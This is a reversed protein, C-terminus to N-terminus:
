AVADHYGVPMSALQKALWQIASAALRENVLSFAANDLTDSASVVSTIAVVNGIPIVLWQMHMPVGNVESSSQLRLAVSDDFPIEEVSEQGAGQGIAAIFQTEFEGLTAADIPQEFVLYSITGSEYLDPNVSAAPSASLSPAGASDQELSVNFTHVGILTEMGAARFAELEQAQLSPDLPSADTFGIPLFKREIPAGLRALLTEPDHQQTLDALEVLSPRDDMRNVGYPAVLLASLIALVLWKM